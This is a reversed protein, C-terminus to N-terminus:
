YLLKRTELLNKPTGKKLHLHGMMKKKKSQNFIKKRRMLIIMILYIKIKLKKM